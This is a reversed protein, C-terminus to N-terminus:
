RVNLRLLVRPLATVGFSDANQVTQFFQGPTSIWLKGNILAVAQLLRSIQFGIDPATTDAPIPM